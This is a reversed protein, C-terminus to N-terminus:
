RGARWRKRRARLIAVAEASVNHGYVCYVVVERRPQAAAFVAVEEPACRLAGALLQESACFIPSRRVDLLLPADARGIREALQQPSIFPVPSTSTDM